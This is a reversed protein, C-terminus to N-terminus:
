WRRRPSDAAKDAAKGALFASALGAALKPNKLAVLGALLAGGAALMPRERAIGGLTEILSPQSPPEHRARARLGAVVGAGAVFVAAVAAVVAAAGPEGLGPVLGAYLAFASAVLMVGVAAAIASIAIVWLVVRKIV